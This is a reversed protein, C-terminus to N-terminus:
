VFELMLVVVLFLFLFDGVVCVCVCVCVCLIIYETPQQWKSLEQRIPMMGLKIYIYTYTM